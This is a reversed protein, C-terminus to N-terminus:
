NLNQMVSISADAADIEANALSVNANVLLYCMVATFVVVGLCVCARFLKEKKTRKSEKKYFLIEKTRQKM